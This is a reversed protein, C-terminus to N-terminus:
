NYLELYSIDDGLLIKLNFGSPALANAFDQETFYEDEILFEIEDLDIITPGNSCTFYATTGALLSDIGDLITLSVKDSQLKKITM